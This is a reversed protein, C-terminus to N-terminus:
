RKKIQSKVSQKKTKKRTQSSKPKQNKTRSKKQKTIKRIASFNGVVPNELNLYDRVKMKISETFSGSSFIGEKLKSLSQDIVVPIKHISGFASIAGPKVKFKESMVKEKPISLKSQSVNLVKALKKLDLNKDAAVLALYFDRGVKVLLSKVVEGLKVKLTAAADFATYVKKHNVVQHEVKQEGLKNLLTKAIAM